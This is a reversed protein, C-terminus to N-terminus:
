YAGDDRRIICGWVSQGLQVDNPTFSTPNFTVAARNDHQEKKM